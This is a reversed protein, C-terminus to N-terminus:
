YGQGPQSTQVYYGSMSSFMGHGGMESPGAIGGYEDDGVEEKLTPWQPPSLLSAVGLCPPQLPPAQPLPNVSPLKSLLAELSTM